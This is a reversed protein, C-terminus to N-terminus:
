ESLAYVLEIPSTIKPYIAWYYAYSVVTYGADFIQLTIKYQYANNNPCFLLQRSVINDGAQGFYVKGCVITYNDFDINQSIAIDNCFSSFTQADNIILLTDKPMAVALPNDKSFVDNLQAELSGNVAVPTITAYNCLNSTTETETEGTTPTDTAQNNNSIEEDNDCSSFGVICLAVILVYKANCLWKMKSKVNKMKM